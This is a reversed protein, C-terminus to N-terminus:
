RAPTWELRIMGRPGLTGGPPGHGLAGSPGDRSLNPSWTVRNPFHWALYFTAEASGGAPVPAEPTPGKRFLAPLKLRSFISAM